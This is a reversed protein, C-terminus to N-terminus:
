AFTDVLGRTLRAPEAVAGDEVEAEAGAAPRQEAGGDADSRAGSGEGSGVSVDGLRLGEEALADRLRSLSSEIADRVALHNSIFKVAAEDDNMSLEISVPGLEPPNVELTATGIGAALGLAVRSGLEQGWSPSGVPSSLPALTRAPLAADGGEAAAVASAAGLVQGFGDSPSRAAATGSRTLSSPDSGRDAGLGDGTGGASSGAANGAALMAAAPASATAEGQGGAASGTAAPAAASPATASVAAAHLTAPDAGAVALTSGPAVPQGGAGTRIASVAVAEKTAEGEGAAIGATGALSLAQQSVAPELGEGLMAVAALLEGSLGAGIIDPSIAAPETGPVLAPSAAPDDGRVPEPQMATDVSGTSSADGAPAAGDTAATAVSAPSDAALQADLTEGFATQGGEGKGAAGHGPQQAPARTPILAESVMLAQKM